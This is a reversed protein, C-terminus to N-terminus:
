EIEIRRGSGGCIPCKDLDFKTSKDKKIKMISQEKKFNVDYGSGFCITCIGKDVERLIQAM